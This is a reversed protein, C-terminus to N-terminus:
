KYYKIHAKTTNTLYMKLFLEEKLMTKLGYQGQHKDTILM